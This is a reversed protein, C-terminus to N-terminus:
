HMSGIKINVMSNKAYNIIDDDDERGGLEGANVGEWDNLETADEAAGAGDGDYM